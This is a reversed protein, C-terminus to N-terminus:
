KPLIRLLVRRNKAAKEIMEAGKWVTKMQTTQVGKQILYTAVTKARFESLTLNKDRSGINEAYGTIAVKRNPQQKLFSAVSDLAAKNDFTVM